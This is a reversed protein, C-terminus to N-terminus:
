AKLGIIMPRCSHLLLQDFYSLFSTERHSMILQCQGLALITVAWLLSAHKWPECWGPLMVWNTSLFIVPHTVALPLSSIPHYVHCYISRSPSCFKIMMVAYWTVWVYRVPQLWSVDTICCHCFSQAWPILCDLGLCCIRSSRISNMLGNSFLPCSTISIISALEGILSGAISSNM